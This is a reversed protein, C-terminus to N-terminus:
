WIRVNFFNLVNPPSHLGAPVRSHRLHRPEHNDSAGSSKSVLSAYIYDYVCSTAYLCGPHPLGIGPQNSTSFNENMGM